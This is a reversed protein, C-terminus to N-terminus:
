ADTETPQTTTRLAAKLMFPAILTTLIIVVIVSSYFDRHLLHADFGIQAVILAMEGRSVMGAGVVNGEHRSLGALMAGGGCGIWKTALALVTMIVIFWFDQLLGTFRMNLGISVFFVPIFVAYGIAELSADVERRYPTQAIAVGAFFAGIVASLGLVDALYAMGLCVLLSMITVASAPYLREALHMLYPAAFRVVLYIVVFYAVQEVLTLWLPLNGAAEGTGFMGVAVSLIIVTLIDDVVAAGLITAGGSTDLADLEKLVEVSISVSTAAFTIGLFSAATFNFGWWTAFAWITVVPVIVGIVAVLVGPRFYRKLMVLDSELGAIFMLAIVGIEAFESIMHTPQVWNLLTPGLLVGALLQGIVAPIGLQQSFHSLLLTTVLILALTGLYGM